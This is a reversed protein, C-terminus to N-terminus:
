KWDIHTKFQGLLLSWIRFTDNFNSPSVGGKDLNVDMRIIPDGNKTLTAKAFRKSSNWTTVLEPSQPDNFDFGAQFQVSNCEIKQENCGYFYINFRVGETASVIKPRGEGSAELNARYGLSTIYDAFAAPDDATVNQASATQFTAAMMIAALVIRAQM